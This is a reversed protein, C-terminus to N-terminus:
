SPKGWGTARSLKKNYKRGRTRSYNNGKLLQLTWQNRGLEVDEEGDIRRISL